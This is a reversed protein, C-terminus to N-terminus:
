NAGNVQFNNVAAVVKLADVTPKVDHVRIIKVQQQAAVVAAAISAYVRQGPNSDPEALIQGLMSKRSIGVLVPLGLAVFDGLCSLLQLNHSLQKGFGFGPDIVLKGRDIGAQEALQVRHLLFAKVEEVVDQYDPSQQMSRPEGKMHMLCVPVQLDAATQLAGDGALAKVDNVMAAGAQVAARMVEAKSTDISVYAPLRAMIAEIVPVVRDLEEAVLVRGAGPRTSEGGVDIIDAGETLMQECRYLAADISNYCGGDM